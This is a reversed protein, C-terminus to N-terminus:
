CTQGGQESKVPFKQRWMYYGCEKENGSEEASLYLAYSEAHMNKRSQFNNKISITIESVTSSKPDSNDERVSLKRIKSLFLLMEPHLSSLQKKVADVKESKLPLIITTTPLVKSCGYITEIISLSPISEVWEPVIYGINCKVCPKENFKIHYGNSFIHPQSSILFVSKFGIGSDFPV